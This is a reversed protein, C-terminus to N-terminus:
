CGVRPSGQRFLHTRRKNMIWEGIGYYTKGEVKNALSSYLGWHIFMAYYGEDFLQGRKANDARLKVVCDGWMTEMEQGHATVALGALVLASLVSQARSTWCYKM